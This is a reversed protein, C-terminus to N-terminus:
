PNEPLTPLAPMETEQLYRLFPAVFLGPSLSRSQAFMFPCRTYDSWIPLVSAM